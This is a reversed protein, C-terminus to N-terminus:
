NNFLGKGVMENEGESVNAHTFRVNARTPKVNADLPPDHSVNVAGIGCENPTTGEKEKVPEPQPLKWGFTFPGQYLQKFRGANPPV